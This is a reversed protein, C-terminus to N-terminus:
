RRDTTLIGGRSDRRRNREAENTFRDIRGLDEEVGPLGQNAAARSSENNTPPQWFGTLSLPSIGGAVTITAGALIPLTAEIIWVIPVTM